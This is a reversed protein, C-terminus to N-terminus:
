LYKLAKIPLETQLCIAHRVLAHDFFFFDDGRDPSRALSNFARNEGQGVGPKQIQQVILAVLENGYGFGLHETFVGSFQQVFYSEHRDVCVMDDGHSFDNGVVRIRHSGTIRDM